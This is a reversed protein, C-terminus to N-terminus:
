RQISLTVVSDGEMSGPVQTGAQEVGVVCVSPLPLVRNVKWQSIM